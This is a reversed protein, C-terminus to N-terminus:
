GDQLWRWLWLGVRVLVTLVVSLVLGTVIPFYFTFREGELHIDGPLGRFGLRGAGWVLLGVLVLLVGGILLAKGVQTM